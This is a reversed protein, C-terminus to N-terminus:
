VYTCISCAQATASMHLPLSLTGSPPKQSASGSGSGSSPKPRDGSDTPSGQASQQALGGLALPGSSRQSAQSQSQMNAINDLNPPVLSFDDEAPGSERPSGHTEVFDGLASSPLENHSPEFSTGVNALSLKLPAHTGHTHSPDAAASVGRGQADHHRLMSSALVHSTNQFSSGAQGPKTTAPFTSLTPPNTSHNVNLDAPGTTMVSTSLDGDCHTAPRSMLASSCHQESPAAANYVANSSTALSSAGLAAESGSPQMSSRMSHMHQPATTLPADLTAATVQLRPALMSGSPM